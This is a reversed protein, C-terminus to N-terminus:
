SKQATNGFLGMIFRPQCESVMEIVKNFDLRDLVADPALLNVVGVAVATQPEDLFQANHRRKLYCTAAGVFGGNTPADIAEVVRKM